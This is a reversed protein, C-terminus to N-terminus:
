MCHTTRAHLAIRENETHQYHHTRRTSVTVKNMQKQESLIQEVQASLTRLSKAALSCFRIGFHLTRGLHSTRTSTVVPHDALRSAKEDVSSSFPGVIIGNIDTKSHKTLIIDISINM